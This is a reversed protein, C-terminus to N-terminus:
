KPVATGITISFPVATATVTVQATATAGDALRIATVTATGPAVGGVYLKADVNIISAVAPNDTTATHTFPSLQAGAEDLIPAKEVTTVTAM